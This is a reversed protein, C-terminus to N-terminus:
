KQDAVSKSKSAASKDVKGVKNNDRGQGNTMSNSGDKAVTSANTTASAEGDADVDARNLSESNNPLMFGEPASDHLLTIGALKAINPRMEDEHYLGTGLALTQILMEDKDDAPSMKEWTVTPKNIGILRLCRKLFDTNLDRRFRMTRNTPDALTQATGYAGSQGPDSLLSVVSIGLASAVQAALPRGTDLDVANGKPMAQVDMTSILTGGAGRQTKASMGATEAQNKSKPTMKWAFEALAALVKTGDRLYASYALAWPAAAFSDAMGWTCGPKLNVRSDIMRKTKIVPNGNISTHLRPQTYLDSPYWEVTPTVKIVGTKADYVQKDYTREWYWVESPDDPNYYADSIQSLPMPYFRTSPIDYYAFANGKSYRQGEIRSLAEQGFVADQNRPNDFVGQARVSVKGTADEVGIEYPAGFLYANRLDRGRSLLPNTDAWQELQKGTTKVDELTMGDDSRNGLLNWGVDEMRLMSRAADALAERQAEITLDALQLDSRLKEPSAETVKTLISPFNSM